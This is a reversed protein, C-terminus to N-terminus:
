MKKALKEFPTFTGEAIISIQPRTIHLYGLPIELYDEHIRTPILFPLTKLINCMTLMIKHWSVSSLTLLLTISFSHLQIDCIGEDVRKLGMDNGACKGDSSIKLPRPLHM